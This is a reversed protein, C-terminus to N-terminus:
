HEVNRPKRGYRASFPLPLSLLFGVIPIILLRYFLPVELGLDLLWRISLVIWLFGFVFSFLMSSWAPSSRNGCSSCSIRPRLRLTWLSRWVEWYGFERQCSSCRNM